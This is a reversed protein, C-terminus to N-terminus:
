KEGEIRKRLDELVDRHWEKRQIFDDIIKLVDELTKQRIVKELMEVTGEPDANIFSAVLKDTDLHYVKNKSEKKEKIEFPTDCKQKLAIDLSPIKEPEKTM